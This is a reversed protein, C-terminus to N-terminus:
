GCRPAAPAPRSAPGAQRESLLWPHAHTFEAGPHDFGQQGTICAAPRAGGGDPRSDAPANQRRSLALLPGRRGLDCRPLYSSPYGWVDARGGLVPQSWVGGSSAMM